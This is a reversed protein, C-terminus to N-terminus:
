LMDPSVVARIIAQEDEARIRSAIWWISAKKVCWFHTKRTMAIAAALGLTPQHGVILVSGKSTDWNAAKLLDQPSGGPAIEPLTTFLLGLADATQQARKAPSVLIQTDKPLRPKLWAAMKKAQEHGKETLAREHDPYGDEAEAHRWLILEM